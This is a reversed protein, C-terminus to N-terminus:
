VLPTNKPKRIFYETWGDKRFLELKNKLCYDVLEEKNDAHALIRDEYSPGDMDGFCEIKMLKWHNSPVGNERNYKIIM